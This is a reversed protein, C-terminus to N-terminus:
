LTRKQCYYPIWFMLKDLLETLANTL